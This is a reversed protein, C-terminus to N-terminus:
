PEGREYTRQKGSKRFVGLPLPLIWRAFVGRRGQHSMRSDGRPPGPVCEAGIPALVIRFLPQANWQNRFSFKAKNLVTFQFGVVAMEALGFQGNRQHHEQPLSSARLVWRSKLLSVVMVWWKPSNFGGVRNIIVGPGDEM